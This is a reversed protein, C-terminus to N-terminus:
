ALKINYGKCSKNLKLATSISSKTVGIYEAAEAQSNFILDNVLIRRGNIERLKQKTKESHKIGSHNSLKGLRALRMKQKTEESHKTGIRRLLIKRYDQSENWGYGDRINFDREMDAAKDLDKEKVIECVDDLTYGQAKLRNPLEKSCGWKVHEIHYLYYM